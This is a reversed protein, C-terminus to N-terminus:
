SKRHPAMAVDGHGTMIIVPLEPSEQRLKRSVDLGSADPLRVDLLACRAVGREFGDWFSKGTAFSITEFGSVSLLACVSDRVADDDDLVYIPKEDAM